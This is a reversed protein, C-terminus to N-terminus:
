YRGAPELKSREDAGSGGAISPVITIEDGDRVRTAEGDLDRVHVDNLYVTVFTRLEGTEGFLHPKLEPFRRGVAALADGMTGPPVSVVAADDTYRRLATPLRVSVSRSM